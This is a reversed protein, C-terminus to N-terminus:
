LVSFDKVPAAAIPELNPLSAPPSASPRLTQPPCVISLFTM